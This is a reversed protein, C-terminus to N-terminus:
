LKIVKKQRNSEICKEIITITRIGDDVTVPMPSGKTLSEYVGEYYDYYNGKESIIEERFFSGDKKYHLIGKESEPETGWDTLGPKINQLLKTEQVDARSKVFSGNLGHFIFSAPIERVIYGAKLRVRLQNYMLQIDFWDDVESGPRTIRIDAFIAEPLGFLCLAQDILHPGLDILIGGGPGPGEKNRKHSIAPNIRDFHLEAEVLQGLVNKQLIKRCTKFDSDWRRNQFVAIKLHASEATKKLDIAEELTTTFAKEVIIHKGANLAKKAYDYHTYTPTNIVVLDITSDQLVADLSPYSIVDPYFEQINKQSREWAGALEFGPHLQIFPAHFVRGSMGFSLLAAKIPKM